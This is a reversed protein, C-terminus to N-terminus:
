VAMMVALVWLGKTMPATSQRFVRQLSLTRAQLVGHEHPKAQFLFLTSFDMLAEADDPDEVLRVGLAVGIDWLNEARFARTALEALGMLPFVQSKLHVLAQSFTENM